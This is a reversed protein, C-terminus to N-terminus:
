NSLRYLPSGDECAAERVQSYYAAFNGFHLFRAGSFLNNRYTKLAHKSDQIMVIPSGRFVPISIKFSPFGPRPIPIEVDIYSDASESFQKQIGRETETGDCAYSIVRIRVDLLGFMVKKHMVLLDKEKLHDSIPLAAIVIPLMKPLPVQLVWLRLKTGKPNSSNNMETRLKAVDAVECPGNVGGVVSYCNQSSDWYM